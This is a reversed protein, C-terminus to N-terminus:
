YWSSFLLSHTCFRAGHGKEQKKDFLTSSSVYFCSFIIPFSSRMAMLVLVNSRHIRNSDLHGPGVFSQELPLRCTLLGPLRTLKVPRIARSGTARRSYWSCCRYRRQRRWTNTQTRTDIRTHVHTYFPPTHLTHTHTLQTHSGSRCFICVHITQSVSYNNLIFTEGPECLHRGFLLSM